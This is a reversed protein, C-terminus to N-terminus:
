LPRPNCMLRWITSCKPPLIHTSLLKPWPARKEKVRGVALAVHALLNEDRVVLRADNRGDFKEQLAASVLDVDRAIALFRQPGDLPLKRIEHQEVHHHRNLAAVLHAGPDALVRAPSMDLHDHKGGFPAIGFDGSPQREPGIYVDGLGERGAVQYGSDVAQQRLSRFRCVASGPSPEQSKMRGMPTLQNISCHLMM